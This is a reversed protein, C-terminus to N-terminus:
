YCIRYARNYLKSKDYEVTMFITGNIKIGCIGLYPYNDRLAKKMIKATIKKSLNRNYRNTGKKTCKIWFIVYFRKAYEKRIKRWNM